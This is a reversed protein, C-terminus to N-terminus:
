LARKRREVSVAGDNGIAVEDRNGIERQGRPAGPKVQDVDRASPDARMQHRMPAPGVGGVGAPQLAEGVLGLRM